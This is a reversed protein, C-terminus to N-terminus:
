RARYADRRNEHALSAPLRYRVAGAEVSSHRRGHPHRICASRNLTAIVDTNAPQNFGIHTDSIQLFLPTGIDPQAEAIDFASFVGASLTFLTGAGVGLCKLADRRSASDTM